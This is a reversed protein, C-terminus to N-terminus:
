PAEANSIMTLGSPSVFDELEKRVMAFYEAVSMSEVAPMYPVVSISTKDAEVYAAFISEQKEVTWSTPVYFLYAVDKNSALKMGEPAEANEDLVKQYGEPEYPTGPITFSGIMNQMDTQLASYLTADITFTLVYFADSKEGVVQLFETAVGNVRATYHYQKANLKGLVASAPEEVQEVENGFAYSKVVSLCYEEWFWQINGKEGANAMQSQMEPTIPYKKASVTSQTSLHYYAGSIGYDINENWVTPVYLRFDEGACTALKMGEPTQEDTADGTSCSALCLLLTLTLLLAAAKTFLKM